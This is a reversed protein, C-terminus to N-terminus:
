KPFYRLGGYVSNDSTHEKTYEEEAKREAFAIERANEYSEHRSHWCDKNCDYLDWASYTVQGDELSIWQLYYPDEYKSYFSECSIYIELNEPSFPYVSYQWTLTPHRNLRALLGETIDVILMRAKCVDLIRQTVFELQITHVSENFYIKSNELNLGEEHKVQVTFNQVLQTFEESEIDLTPTPIEEETIVEPYEETADWDSYFLSDQNYTCGTMLLLVICPIVQVFIHPKRSM